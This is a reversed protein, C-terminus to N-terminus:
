SLTELQKFPAFKESQTLDPNAKKAEAFASAAKQTDKMEMFLM